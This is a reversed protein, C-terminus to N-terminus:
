RSAPRFPTKTRGRPVFWPKEVAEFAPATSARIFARGYTAKTLL